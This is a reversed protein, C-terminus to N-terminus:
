VCCETPGYLNYSAVGRAGALEDWLHRDLAEGGVLLLRPQYPRHLLGTALLLRLQSPVCDLAEVAQQELWELLSLPDRRQQEDPLLLTAGSLWRLWQQVSADFRLPANLSLRLAEPHRAYIAQELAAALNLVARQSIQVGKPTGTSGS